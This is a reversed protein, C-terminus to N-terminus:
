YLRTNHQEVRLIGYMVNYFTVALGGVNLIRRSYDIEFDAESGEGKCGQVSM